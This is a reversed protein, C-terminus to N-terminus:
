RGPLTEYPTPFDVPEFSRGYVVQPSTLDGTNNINGFENVCMLMQQRLEQFPDYPGTLGAGPQSLLGIAGSLMDDLSVLVGNQMRDVFVTGQMFGFGNNLLTAAVERSLLHGAHGAPPLQEIWDSLAGFAQDFPDPLPPPLFISAEPLLTSYPQRLNVPAGNRTTLADRWATDFPVLTVLGTQDHWFERPRGAGPQVILAVNGFDPAAVHVANALVTGERPATALWTAGAVGDNVFGGPAIERLTYASGDRDRILTYRGDQDTYTVGDPQGNLTSEVRWGGVPVELPESAPNWTGSQDYDYFKHGRLISQRLMTGVKFNESKCRGPRFGFLGAGGADYDEVRTLWLKHEGGPYPTVQFPILQLLLGGCPGNTTSLRTTGTYQAIRGGAVVVRRESLPDPTLLVTGAPDTIQFYYAGDPLGPGVCSPGPGGALCVASPRIFSNGEVDQNFRNRLFVSGPTQAPLPAALAAAALLSVPLSPFPRAPM